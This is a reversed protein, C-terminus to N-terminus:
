FTGMSTNTGRSFMSLGRTMPRSARFLPTRGTPPYCHYSDSTGAKVMKPKPLIHISLVTIYLSIIPNHPATIHPALSSGPSSSFLFHAFLRVLLPSTVKSSPVAAPSGRMLTVHSHYLSATGIPLLQQIVFRRQHAM